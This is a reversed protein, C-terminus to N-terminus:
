GAHESDRGTALDNALRDNFDSLASLNADVLAANTGEVTRDMSDIVVLMGGLVYVVIVTAVMGVLGPITIATSACYLITIHRLMRDYIPPTRTHMRHLLYEVTSNINLWVPGPVASGAQDIFRQHLDRFGAERQNGSLVQELRRSWSLMLRRDPYTALAASLSGVLHTVNDEFAYLRMQATRLKTSLLVGIAFGIVSILVEVGPLELWLDHAELLVILSKLVLGLAMLTTVQGILGYRFTRNSATHTFVKVLRGLRLVRLWDSIASGTFIMSLASPLFALMDVLGPFSILYALRRRTLVSRATFDLGFVVILAVEAARWAPRIREVLEPYLAEFGLMLTSLVILVLILGSVARQGRTRPGNLARYFWNVRSVRM